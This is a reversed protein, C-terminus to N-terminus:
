KKAVERIIVFAAMVSLIGVVCLGSIWIPSLVWVWSWDIVGLLKFAIFLISLLGVFGIGGSSSSSSNKSM